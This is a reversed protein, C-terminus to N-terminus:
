AMESKIVKTSAPFTVRIHPISMGQSTCKRKKGRSAQFLEENFPDYGLSLGGKNNPLEIFSAKGHGVAGLGQGFQYGVKLMEKAVMLTTSPWISELELAKSIMSVLEFSHFTAEPFANTGIDPVFAEKFFNLPEEAM